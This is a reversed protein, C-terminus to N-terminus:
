PGFNCFIKFIQRLTKHIEVRIPFKLQNLLIKREFLLWVRSSISSRYILFCNFTFRGHSLMKNSASLSILWGGKWVVESFSSISLLPDDIVTKETIETRQGIICSKRPRLLTIAERLMQTLSKWECMVVPRPDSEILCIRWTFDKVLFSLRMFLLRSYLVTNPATIGAHLNFHVIKHLIHKLSVNKLIVICFIIVTQTM